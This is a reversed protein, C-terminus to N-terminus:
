EKILDISKSSIKCDDIENIFDSYGLHTNDDKDYLLKYNDFDKKDNCISVLVVVKASKNNDLSLSIGDSVKFNPYIIFDDIKKNKFLFSFKNNFYIALNMLGDYSSNLQIFFNSNEKITDKVDITINADEFYTIFDSMEDQKILFKKDAIYIYNDNLEMNPVYGFKQKISKFFKTNLLQKNTQVEAKFALTKLYQLLQTEIDINIYKLKIFYKLEFIEQTLLEFDKEDVNQINLKSEIQEIANQYALDLSDAYAYITHTNTPQVFWKPAITNAQLNASFITILLIIKSLISM